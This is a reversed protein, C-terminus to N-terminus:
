YYDDPLPEEMDSSNGEEAEEGEIEQGEFLEQPIGFEAFAAASSPNLASERYKLHRISDEVFRAHVPPMKFWKPDTKPMPASAATRLQDDANEVQVLLALPDSVSQVKEIIELSQDFAEMRRQIKAIEADVKGERATQVSKIQTEMEALKDDLMKKLGEIKERASQRAADAAATLDPKQDVLKRSFDRHEGRKQRLSDVQQVMRKRIVEVADDFALHVDDNHKRHSDGMLCEPCCLQNFETCFLISAENPHVPCQYLPADPARKRKAIRRLPTIGSADIFNVSKCLVCTIMKKDREKHLVRSINPPLYRLEQSFSSMSKVLKGACAMCYTHPQGCNPLTIYESPSQRCVLCVLDPDAVAADSKMLDEMKPPKVKQGSAPQPKNNNNRWGQKGGKVEDNFQAQLAAALQADLSLVSNGAEVLIPGGSPIPSASSGTTSSSVNQLISSLFDASIAPKPPAAAPALAAAPAPETSASAAPPAQPPDVVSAADSAPEEENFKVKKKPPDSMDSDAGAPESPAPADVAMKDDDAPAVATDASSSAVTEEDFKKKLAHLRDLIAKYNYKGRPERFPDRMSKGDMEPSLKEALAVYKDFCARFHEKMEDMFMGETTPRELMGCVAVRLTEHQIIKNYAEVDGKTKEEEYGPENHYPAGNMLSQISILTSYMTQVSTWSPGSWTGLISLCVKGNSYLNPNFRVTGNNTTVLTVKPPNWPYDHPYVMDFHFFGDAYPTDEPGIILASVHTVDDEDIMVHILPNKAKVLEQYDALIRKVAEPTPAPRNRDLDPHLDQWNSLTYKIPGDEAPEADDDAPYAPQGFPMPPPAVPAQYKMGQAYLDNQLEMALKMDLDMQQQMLEEYLSGPAGTPASSAAAAAAAANEEEQLKVALLLDPDMEADTPNDM